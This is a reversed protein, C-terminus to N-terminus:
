VCPKGASLCCEPMPLEAKATSREVIAPAFDNIGLHKSANLHMVYSLKLLAAGLMIGVHAIVQAGLSWHEHDIFGVYAGVLMLAVSFPMLRNAITLVQHQTM